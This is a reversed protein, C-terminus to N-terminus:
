TYSNEQLFSHLREYCESNFTEVIRIIRQNKAFDGRGLEDTM